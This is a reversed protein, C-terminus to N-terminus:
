LNYDYSQNIDHKLQQMYDSRSRGKQCLDKFNALIRITEKVRMQIIGLDEKALLSKIAQDRKGEINTAIGDDDAVDEGYEQDNEENSSSMNTKIYNFNGM